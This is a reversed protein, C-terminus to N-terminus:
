HGQVYSCVTQINMSSLRSYRKEDFPINPKLYEWIAKAKNKDFLDYYLMRPGRLSYFKDIYEKTIPLYGNNVAWENMHSPDNELIIWRKINKYVWEPHLWLATCAVGDTAIEMEDLSLTALPDHTADLWVSAWATGSRPLAIVAFDIM